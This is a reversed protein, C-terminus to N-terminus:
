AATGAAALDRIHRNGDAWIIKMTLASVRWTEGRRELRYHYEGGLTWIPGGLPNPLLHTAQFM